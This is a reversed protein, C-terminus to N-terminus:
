HAKKALAAYTAALYPNEKQGKAITVEETINPKLFPNGGALIISRWNELYPVYDQLVASSDMDPRLGLADTHRTKLDAIVKEDVSKGAALHEGWELLETAYDTLKADMARQYEQALAPIGVVALVRQAKQEYALGELRDAQAKSTQLPRFTTRVKAASEALANQVDAELTDFAKQNEEQATQIQKAIMKDRAETSYTRLVEHPLTQAANLRDTSEQVVTTARNVLDGAKTTLTKENNM